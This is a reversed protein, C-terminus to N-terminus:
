SRTHTEEKVQLDHPFYGPNDKIFNVIHSIFTPTSFNSHIKQYPNHYHYDNNRDHYHISM